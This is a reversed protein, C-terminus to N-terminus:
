KKAELMKILNFVGRGKKKTKINIFVGTSAWFDYGLVRFHYDSLVEVLYGKEALMKISNIKNHEKKIKSREKLFKFIDGIESM